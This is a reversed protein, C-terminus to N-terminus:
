NTKRDRLGVARLVGGTYQNFLQKARNNMNEKERLFRFVQSEAAWQLIFLFFDDGEAQM